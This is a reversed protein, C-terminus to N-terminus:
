SWWPKQRRASLMYDFPGNRARIKIAPNGGVLTWPEVDKTVVAGAAVVAGEGVQRGPLIISRASIWAWSGIEVAAAVHAFDPSDWDHQATWIQVGANVSTHDGITLGGSANLLVDEAIFVDDGLTLRWPAKVNLHRGIAVGKGVNAGLCRLLLVRLARSPFRSIVRWVVEILSGAILNFQQRM